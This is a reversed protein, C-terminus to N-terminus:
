SSVHLLLDLDKSSNDAKFVYEGQEPCAVQQAHGAQAENAQNQQCAAHPERAKVLFSVQATCLCKQAELHLIGQRLLRVADTSSLVGKIKKV